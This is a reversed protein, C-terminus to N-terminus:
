KRAATVFHASIQFFEIQTNTYQRHIMDTPCSLLCNYRRPPEDKRQLMHYLFTIHVAM